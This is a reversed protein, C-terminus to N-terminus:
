EVTVSKALNRPQDVDTGRAIATNYALMQAAIAYILPAIVVPATPMVIVNQVDCALKAGAADTLLTVQGHRAMVEQMNSVTKDFLAGTPAFIVVPLTNDILAIPGHKLEGAAYAEAHIYSIEKLKLAAELAMPFMVGRGLFLVDDSQALKQAVQAYDQERDLAQSILGPVTSIESMLTKLGEADIKEREVGAKVALLLLSILQATFAKTSAVGIEPGALTPVLVDAERAISSTPVNVVALTQRVQGAVHRLAALTDATEGSQSVVILLDDHQLVPDRYRFESAIDIEVPIRAIQEFWYKAVQCAYFATGCAVMVVRRIENFQVGEPLTLAGSGENIYAALVKQIISPQEAMEKAMFHRHGSKNAAASELAIKVIPRDVEKGGTDFVQVSSRTIAAWDGEELYTLKDTLPALAIADSGVYMEDSGHGIVLPSGRRAAILLDEEGEFLFALAFAGELRRLTAHTADLPTMGEALHSRALHVITETDTDSTFNAGAATLEDRLEQFNEIIGNHVVAVPGSRHPHANEVSPAGHTAWRTHGIGAFGRLPERVLIEQLNILKGAARRCDLAGKHVTAIGASDYGRYELRKLAGLIVPTVDHSGLVGVIGCM